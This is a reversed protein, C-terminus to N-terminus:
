EDETTQALEFTLVRKGEPDALYITGDGGIALDHGKTPGEGSADLIREIEHENFGALHESHRILYYSHKHHASHAIFRGVNHLLGAAELVDRDAEDLRALVRNLPSQAGRLVLPALLAAPPLLRRGGGGGGDDVAAHQGLRRLRRRLLRLLM